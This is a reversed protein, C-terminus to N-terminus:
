IDLNNHNNGGGNFLNREIAISNSRNSNSSINNYNNNDNGTALDIPDCVIIQNAQKRSELENKDLSAKTVLAKLVEDIRTVPILLGINFLSILYHFLIIFIYNAQFNNSVM